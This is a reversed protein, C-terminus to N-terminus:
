GQPGALFAKTRQITEALGLREVVVGPPFAGLLRSPLRRDLIVFVGSDSARRILRGYAQKLRLRAIMDDYDTATFATRRARHLITPRPWPVRDFVILRLSRGPVDVGDRVADTGLLCSDEEARFIDVLSATNMADVHQALLRIGADELEPAIRRHVAKLRAIATFLGLAGGCAALFLTRYAAALQDIDGRGLDNVIFVRTVRAYDFPSPTAWRHAPTELHAAGSRALAAEWDRVPDGTGDRLSASTIVVGHAPEIVAKAFPIMPDIWHRYLGFDIDRGDVRAVEFWDVFLATAPHELAALMSCWVAVEGHRRRLARGISEIRVRMPTDLDAAMEDLLQILRLALGEIPQAFAELAAALHQAAAAVPPALPRTDAELGYGQETNKARAHVDERLAALFAETAGRANGEVVRQRWGPGPLVRAAAITAALLKALRVDLQALDDIRRKLGRARSTRGEEAGLIWHRLDAAEQGALAASFAGDAADFVHHGEDFVIRETQTADDLGGLASQAMVLAHNAVVIQARRARRVTGEIFCKHYHPCASYICEGRRDALGVTNRLGVLDPLWAPFDGGALDGDRAVAAWRATLGLAIADPPRSGIRGVADELNLLCLYNERGKRVVVHSAKAIPDPYLRDLETDIQRQLNRTYTSIWVTGGNKEAWLGAPAVYGLTKGIGTGAEAVVVNPAGERPRPAFAPVLAAAYDAQQPRAEAQSGVLMALRARTEDEAVPQDGAPPRPAEEAWEGLNRWVALGAPAAQDPARPTEPPLAALVAAAWEWGGRRMVEAVTRAEAAEKADLDGLEALLTRAIEIITAAEDALHVPPALGLAAALGKPTPLPVRAPRVFAFLELVDLAAFSKVGLRTALLPRHCLLAPAGLGVILVAEALATERLLGDAEAIAARGVGVALARWQTSATVFRSLGSDNVM